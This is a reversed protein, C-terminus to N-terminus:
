SAKSDQALPMIVYAYGDDTRCVTANEGSSLEFSFTQDPDLVKLFDAFYRPDLNVTIEKGDYPIPLEIHSDGYEAGHAALVVQGKNFTFLVGRRDESTVIAAQRVAAYFPGAALDIQVTGDKRPFVDRWKPYRGEVLRSYVTTTGSQVLVDNDRGAVRINEENNAIAREILQMARTPVITMVDGSAHGGVSTAPGKQRALRRGDTAIAILDDAGMELLVGGLAYRSSEADTAFVTRRILERFFRAPLEHYKEEAFAVVDPFEDPPESPLQFESRQGRVITQRGDNQLHLKEDGSERLIPGFRGIPLLITGPTEVDLGEL